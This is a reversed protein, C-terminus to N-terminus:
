SREARERQKNLNDNLMAVRLGKNFANRITKCNPCLAQRAPYWERCVRCSRETRPGIPTGEPYHKQFGFNTM